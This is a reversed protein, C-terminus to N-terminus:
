CHEDKQLVCSPVDTTYFYFIGQEAYFMAVEENSPMKGDYNEGKMSARRYELLDQANNYAPSTMCLCEFFNEVAPAIEFKCPSLPQPSPYPEHKRKGDGRKPGPKKPIEAYSCRINKSACETCEPL